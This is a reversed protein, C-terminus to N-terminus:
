DKVSYDTDRNWDKPLDRAGVQLYKRITDVSISIGLRDAIGQIETPIPSKRATPVYGFQEIAIATLIRAVADVERPDTRKKGVPSPEPEPESEVTDRGANSTAIMGEVIRDFSEHTTLSGASLWTRLKEPFIHAGSFSPDFRRVFLDKRRDIVDLISRTRAGVSAQREVEKKFATMPELGVSLWVAEDVKFYAANSWHGIQARLEDRGLVALDWPALRDFEARFERSKLRQWTVWTGIQAKGEPSFAALLEDDSLARLDELLRVRFKEKADFLARLGRLYQEGLLPPDDPIFAFILKGCTEFLIRPLLESRPKSMNSM